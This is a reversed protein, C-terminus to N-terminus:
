LLTWTSFTAAQGIPEGEAGVVNWIIAQEVLFRKGTGSIRVGKYDDIFGKEQARALMRARESQNVPEATLRSPTKTFREWDLEWLDLAVKNGYNLIPDAEMGHSVVVFSAQYLAKAQEEPSGKREILDRGLWRRFSDLLLQNWRIVAPDAWREADKMGKDESGQNV